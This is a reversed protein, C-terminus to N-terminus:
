RPVDTERCRKVLNEGFMRETHGFWRVDVLNTIRDEDLQNIMESPKRDKLTVDCLLDMLNEHKEEGTEGLGRRMSDM